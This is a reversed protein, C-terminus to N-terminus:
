KLVLTSKDNIQDYCYGIKICQPTFKIMVCLTCFICLYFSVRSTINSLAAVPSHLRVYIAKM